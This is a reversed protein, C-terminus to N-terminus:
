RAIEALRGAAQIAWAPLPVPIEQVGVADAILGMMEDPTPMEDGNLFYTEGAARPRTATLLIGDILDSAHVSSIAGEFTLLPRLHLAALRFMLLTERDRPDYITPPRVITIPFLRDYCRAAVEALHKSKGYPTVPRDPMSEDRPQGPESPGGAAQSSV